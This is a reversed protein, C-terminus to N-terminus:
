LVALFGVRGPLGASRIGATRPRGPRDAVCATEASPWPLRMFSRQPAKEELWCFDEDALCFRRLRRKHAKRLWKVAVASFVSTGLLATVSNCARRSPTGSPAGSPPLSARLPYRRKGPEGPKAAQRYGASVARQAAQPVGFAPLAGLRVNRDKRPKGRGTMALRACWRSSGGQPQSTDRQM